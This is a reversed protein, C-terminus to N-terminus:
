KDDSFQIDNFKIEGFKREEAPAAASGAEQADKASNLRNMFKEMLSAQHPDQATGEPAQPSGAQAAEVTNAEEGSFEQNDHQQTVKGFEFIPSSPSRDYNKLKQAHADSFSYKDLYAVYGRENRELGLVVYSMPYKLSPNLDASLLMGLQDSLAIMLSRDYFDSLVATSQFGDKLGDESSRSIKGWLSVDKLRVNHGLFREPFNVLQVLAAELPKEAMASLKLSASRQASLTNGLRKLMLEREPTRENCPRSQNWVAGESHCIYSASAPAAQKKQDQALARETVCLFTAAVICIAALTRM